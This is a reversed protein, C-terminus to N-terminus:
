LNDEVPLHKNHRNKDKDNIIMKKGAQENAPSETGAAFEVRAKEGEKMLKIRM